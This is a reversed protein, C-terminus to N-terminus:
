GIYHKFINDPLSDYDINEILERLWQISAGKDLAALASRLQEANQALMQQVEEHGQSITTLLNVDSLMSELQHYRPTKKPLL